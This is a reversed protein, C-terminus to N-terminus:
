GFQVSNGLVHKNSALPCTTQVRSTEKSKWHWNAHRFGFWHRTNVISCTDNSNNRGDIRVCVRCWHISQPRSFPHCLAERGNRWQWRAKVDDFLCLRDITITTPWSSSWSSKRRNKHMKTQQWCYKIVHWLLLQWTPLFTSMDIKSSFRVGGPPSKWLVQSKIYLNRGCPLHTATKTRWNRAFDFIPVGMLYRRFAIACNCQQMVLSRVFCSTCSSVPVAEQLPVWIERVLSHRRM